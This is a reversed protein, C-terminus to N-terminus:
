GLRWILIELTWLEVKLWKEVVAFDGVVCSTLGMVSSEYYTAYHSCCCDHRRLNIPRKIACRDEGEEWVERLFKLRLNPLACCDLIVPIYDFDLYHSRISLIELVTNRETGILNWV